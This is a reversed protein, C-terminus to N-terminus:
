NKVILTQLLKDDLSPIPLVKPKRIKKPPKFKRMQPAADLWLRSYVDDLNDSLSTKRSLFKRAFCMNKHLAELPAESLQGLSYGGNLKIAQSAHALYRHVTPPVHMWPLVELHLLYTESCFDHFKEILVEERSNLIRLIVNFRMLLDGLDDRLDSGQCDFLDLVLERNKASFFDKALNGSCVFIDLNVKFM